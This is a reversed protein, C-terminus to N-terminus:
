AAQLWVPGIKGDWKVTATASMLKDDAADVGDWSWKNIYGTGSLKAGTSMGKPIPFNITILEPDAGIPPVEGPKFQWEMTMDGPDILKGPINTRNTTSSLKTDDISKREVDSANLGVVDATFQSDEFTITTGLGTDSM